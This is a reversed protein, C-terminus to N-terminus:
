KVMEGYERDCIDTLMSEAFEFLKELQRNELEICDMNSEVWEDVSDYVMQKMDVVGRIGKRMDHPNDCFRRSVIQEMRVM